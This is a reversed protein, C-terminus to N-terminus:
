WEPLIKTFDDVMSLPVVNLIIKFFYNQNLYLCIFQGSKIYMNWKAPLLTM